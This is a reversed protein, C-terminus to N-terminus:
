PWRCEGWGASSAVVGLANAGPDAHLYQNFCRVGALSPEEPLVYTLRATGNGSAVPITNEASALLLCGPMGLPTLEFPLAVGGWSRDSAGFVLTGPLGPRVGVIEHAMLLGLYPATGSLRATGASGACGRGYTVYAAPTEPGYEWLESLFATRHGGGFLLTHGRAADFVATAGSRGPPPGSPLRQTWTGDWEWTDDLPYPNREHVGGFMVLRRREGDYAMAHVSRGLPGGQSAPLLTWDSGDWTWTDDLGVYPPGASQGGFLVVRQRAAHYALVHRSRPPPRHAPARQTWDRGDWEWTEDSTPFGGFLVICGRAADYAMAHDRRSSPSASPRRESWTDGDWEWTEATGVYGGFLVTRARRADYAMAHGWRPSPGGPPNRQLWSAGDWEWLDGYAKSDGGGFLVARARGTDFAIAHGSRPAPASGMPESWTQGDWLLTISSVRDLAPTGGFSLVGRGRPAAALAHSGLAVDPRSSVLVWSSGDWEWTDSLRVAQWPPIGGHLVVRARAPDYALAHNNRPSPQVPADRLTWDNGDWEWTQFTDTFTAALVVRGRLQDFAMAASSTWPPRTMPMRETWASGDWEWTDDFRGARTDWGGFLLVRGASSDFAMAHGIRAAPGTTAVLTWDIGDWEWTNALPGRLDHGGFLVTRRRVSDYALVSTWRAPPSTMPRRSSWLNGDWEWTGATPLGGALGGFLVVRGRATDLAM